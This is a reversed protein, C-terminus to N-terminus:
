NRERQLM